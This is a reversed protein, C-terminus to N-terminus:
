HTMQKASKEDKDGSSFADVISKPSYQSTGLSNTFQCLLYDKVFFTVANQKLINKFNSFRPSLHEM